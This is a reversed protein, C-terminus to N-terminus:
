VKSGKRKEMRVPWKHAPFHDRLRLKGSTENESVHHEKVGEWVKETHPGKQKKHHIPMKVSISKTM